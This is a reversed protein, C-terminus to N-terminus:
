PTCLRTGGARPACALRPQRSGEYFSALLSIPRLGGNVKPFAALDGAALVPCSSRALGGGAVHRVCINFGCGQLDLPWTLCACRSGSLSSSSPRAFPHNAIALQSPSSSAFCTCKGRPRAFVRPCCLRAPRGTSAKAAKPALSTARDKREFASPPATPVAEPLIDVFGDARRGAM